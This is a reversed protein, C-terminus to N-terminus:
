KKGRKSAKLPNIKQKVKQEIKLNFPCQGYHKYLTPVTAYVTCNKGNHKECGECITEM